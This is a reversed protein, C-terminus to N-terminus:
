AVAILIILDGIIVHYIQVRKIIPHCFLGYHLLRLKVKNWGDPFMSVLELYGRQNRSLGCYVIFQLMQVHVQHKESQM